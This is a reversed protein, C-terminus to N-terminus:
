KLIDQIALWWSPSISLNLTTSRNLCGGSGSITVPLSELPSNLDASLTVASSNGTTSGPNFGIHVSSPQGSAGLSIANTYGATRNITVTPSSSTSTGQVLTTRSAPSISLSFDGVISQTVSTTRNVPGNNGTVIIPFGSNPCMATSATVTMTATIGCVVTPSFTVGLGSPQGSASLGVCGTFQGSRSIAINYQVSNGPAVSQPSPAAAISFDGIAPNQQVPDTASSGSANMRATIFGSRSGLDPNALVTYDVEYQFHNGTDRPPSLLVFPSSTVTFNCVAGGDM